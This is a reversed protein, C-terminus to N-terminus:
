PSPSNGADRGSLDNVDRGALVLRAWVGPPLTDPDLDEPLLLRLAEYELDGLEGLRPEGSEVAKALPEMRVLLDHLRMRQRATLVRVQYEDGDVTVAVPRSTDIRVVM